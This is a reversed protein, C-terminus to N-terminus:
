RSDQVITITGPVIYQSRDATITKRIGTLGEYNFKKIVVRDVGPVQYAANIIDSADLTTNLGTATMFITLSEEVSQLISTASETTSVIIDLAVDISLPSAQKILVDATIPRVKEISFTADTILKNYNYKVTVREGEKPATYSYTALYGTGSVPQNSSSVTINGSVIGSTNTFGSAITLSSVYAYKLKSYFIGSAGAIISELKNTDCYYYRVRLRQGTTLSNDLNDATSAFRVQSSSLDSSEFATGNSYRNDKIECNQVDFTYDVSSVLDGSLTVREISDIMALFGSAPLSSAGIENLISSQLDLTLGNQTVVIIDEVKTLCHGTVTLRGRSPIGQLNIRLYSPGFRVNSVIENGSFLNTVPQTGVTSLNITFSNGNGVAPLSSLATTPIITNLDAVYSAYLTDGASLIGTNPIKVQTGSFTGLDYGDPSFYDASNYRVTVVDTSNSITDTPLTIQSATFSGNSLNTYFLEKGDTNIVSIINQIPSSVTIKGSINTTIEESLASVDLVRTAPHMLTIYYGDGVSYLLTTEELEIRNSYGWDISDQVTRFASIKELNDYDINDDHINDWLYSVELNDTAVPLTNGSITFRGTINSEGVVGDPNSNTVTYREGTTANYVRDIALVPTHQVTISSRDTSSLTGSENKITISQHVLPFSNVDTYATADQGNFIGKIIVEDDLTIENSIWHLKDFGFPSSGYAGSDQVLEYNGLVNGSADTYKELFNAGSSSGSVSTVQTVPQFPLKGSRISERRRQQFNLATSIGRQGLIFDNKADTAKGRGSADKYIYSEISQELTSGQVYLDVKGGTGPDIVTKNGSSDTSVQTGDRTMLTDGPEVALVDIVRSDATLTNIYGLSTGINSGAFISLIRARFTADSESNAGGSFTQLNTVSSIGIASTSIISYKGVNGAAGASVAEVPVELAYEDTIGASDLESRMRSANALYVGSNSVAFTASTMTKFRVGSRSTLSTNVPISVDSDLSTLTFVAVGTAVAGTGRVASFNSALRDLSAGTSTAYSQLSAVSRLDAYLRSLEQATPDIAVDRFVTGPKTDANPQVLRVYDLMSLIISDLSRFNAM